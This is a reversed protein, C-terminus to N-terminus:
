RYGPSLDEAAAKALRVVHGFDGLFRRWVSQMALARKRRPPLRPVDHLQLESLCAQWGDDAVAPARLREPRRSRVDADCQRHQAISSGGVPSFTSVRLERRISCIMFM